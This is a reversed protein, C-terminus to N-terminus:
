VHVPFVPQPAPAGERPSSFYRILGDECLVYFTSLPVNLILSARKRYIHVSHYEFM